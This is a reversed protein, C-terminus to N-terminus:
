YEVEEAYPIKALADAIADDVYDQMQSATVLPETDHESTDIWVDGEKLDDPM